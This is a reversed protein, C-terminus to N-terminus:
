NVGNFLEEFYKNLSDQVLLIDKNVVNLNKIYENYLPIELLKENLSDIEEKIEKNLFNSKVYEKQLKKIKNVKDIVEDNTDLKAKLLISNKCSPSEKIFNIINNLEKEM